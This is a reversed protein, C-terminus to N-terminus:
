PASGGPDSGSSGGSDSGASGGADSSPGPGADPSGTPEDDVTTTDDEGRDPTAPDASAAPMPAPPSEVPTPEAPPAWVPPAAAADPSPPPAPSGSPPTWGGPPNTHDWPGSGRPPPPPATPPPSWGTPGGTADPPPPLWAGPAGYGGPGVPYAYPTPGYRRKHSNRRVITVVFLTVAALTLIGGLVFGGILAVVPGAVDLRGLHLTYTPANRPEGGIGSELRIRYDGPEDVRFSGLRAGSEGAVEYSVDMGADRDPLVRQETGDPSEVLLVVPPIDAEEDIGPGEIFVMYKGTETLRVVQGETTGRITVFDDVEGLVRVVGWIMVLVCMAVALLCAGSVWYGARSPGKVVATV